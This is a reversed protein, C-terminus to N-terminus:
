GRIRQFLEAAQKADVQQSEGVWAIFQDPRVLVWPNDYRDAESGLAQHVVKLPVGAAHAADLLVQQNEADTGLALLTFGDGLEEFVNKGNSLIAPALHHGARAKFQHSGKASCVHSGIHNQWVVPSGEYNPEFAHVEGVAGQSREAWATEFAAPDRLPDFAELFDRDTEISKAIFDNITSAFVPRREADYSDLLAENGWGQLTAALKWGLNRADEFGSNVGYGGYPPHSHAADGAIFIRGARYQDALAFRLDWFGIHQFEIEFEAGVSEHLYKKFDFNDATTGM